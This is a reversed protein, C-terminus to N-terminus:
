FEKLLKSASFADWAGETRGCNRLISIARRRIVPDRCRCSVQFNDSYTSGRQNIEGICSTLSWLPFLTTSLLCVEFLLGILAMDICFTLREVSPKLDLDVIDEALSVITQFMPRFIDWNRRGDVTTRTLMM